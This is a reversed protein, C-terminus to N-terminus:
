SDRGGLPGARDPSNSSAGRPETAAEEVVRCDPLSELFTRGYPKTRIRPDLIVVIGRDSATRILRGFGQRLKDPGTSGIPPTIVKARLPNIVSADGLGLLEAEVPQLLKM